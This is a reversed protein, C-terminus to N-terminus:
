GHHINNAAQDTTSCVDEEHELHGSQEIQITAHTIGAIRRLTEQVEDLIKCSAVDVDASVVVHMTAVPQQGDVTWVHLDHVHDVNPLAEISAHIDKTDVGAPAQEMLVAGSQKLLQWARPLVLVVILISAVTDAFTWGTFYIVAGAILVAVSGFMDVLVHLYAGQINMSEKASRRLILASIVNAILGVVAVIMMM